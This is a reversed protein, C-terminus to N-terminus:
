FDDGFNGCSYIIELEQIAKEKKDLFNTKLSNLIDETNIKNHYLNLLNAELELIYEKLIKKNLYLSKNFEGIIKVGKIENFIKKVEGYDNIIVPVGHSLAELAPNYSNISILLDSYSLIKNIQERDLYGHIIVAKSLDNKDVFNKIKKIYPGRGILNFKFNEKFNPNNKFEYKLFEYILHAGKGKDYTSINTIIYKNSNRKNNIKKNYSVSNRVRYFAGYFGKERVYKEFRTINTGDETIIISEYRYNIKKLNRKLIEKSIMRKPGLINNKDFLDWIGYVRLIIKLDFYDAIKNAIKIFSIHDVLLLDINLNNKHIVDIIKEAIKNKHIFEFKDMPTSKESWPCIGKLIYLHKQKEFFYNSKPLGEIFFINDKKIGIYKFLEMTNRGPHLYQQDLAGYGVWLINM